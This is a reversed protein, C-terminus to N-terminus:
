NTKALKTDLMTKCDRVMKDMFFASEPWMGKEKEFYIVAKDYSKAEYLMYGYEAYIGPPVKAHKEECDTIIRNLKEVYKQKFEPHKYYAYLANDYGEWGYRQTACGTLFLIPMLILYRNMNM